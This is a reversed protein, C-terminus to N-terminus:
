LADARIQAALSAQRSGRGPAYKAAMAALEDGAVTVPKSLSRLERLFDGRRGLANM